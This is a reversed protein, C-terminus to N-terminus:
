DKEDKKMNEEDQAVINGMLELIEDPILMGNEALALLTDLQAEVAQLFKGEICDASHCNCDKEAKEMCSNCTRARHDKTKLSIDFRFESLLKLQKCEICKKNIPIPKVNDIPKLKSVIPENAKNMTSDRHPAQRLHIYYTM